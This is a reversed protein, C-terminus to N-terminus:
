NQSQKELWRSFAGKSIRISKGVKITPFGKQHTLAYATPMSVNMISGLDKVSFVDGVQELNM